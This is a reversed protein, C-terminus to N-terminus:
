VELWELRAMLQKDGEPPYTEIEKRLEDDIVNGIHRTYRQTTSLRLGIKDMVIDFPKEDPMAEPAYNLIRSVVPVPSIFQCHHATAYAQKGKYTIRFDNDKATYRKQWQPDRGVSIAFDDEWKRPIFKGLELDDANERAWELTNDVGWRFATRTPYGSVCAVNPFHELIDLQAELWGPYFYIDDDSYALVSELPLMRAISTRASNKGINESMVLQTPKFEHQLWDRFEICSGNDWVVMTLDEHGRRMSWLCTQVVELRDKHYGDLTPLHTVCALVVKSYASAAKGRNPNNGVRM